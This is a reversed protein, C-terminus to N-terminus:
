PLLRGIAATLAEIDASLRDLRSEMRALLYWSVVMPFGYNAAAALLKEATQADVTM